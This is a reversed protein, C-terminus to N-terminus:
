PFSPLSLYTSGSLSLSLSPPHTFISVHIINSFYYVCLHNSLCLSLSISYTYCYIYIIYIIIYIVINIYIYISLSHSSLSSSLSIFCVSLYISMYICFSILLYNTKESFLYSPFSFSLSLRLCIFSSHTHTTPPPPPASSLCIRCFSNYCQGPSYVMVLPYTYRKHIIPSLSSVAKALLIHNRTTELQIWHCLRM